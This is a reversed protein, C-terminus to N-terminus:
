VQFVPVCPSKFGAQGVYQRFVFGIRRAFIRSETETAARGATDSDTGDVVLGTRQYVQAIYKHAAARRLLVTIEAGVRAAIQYDGGTAHIVTQVVIHAVALETIM